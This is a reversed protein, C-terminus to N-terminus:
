EFVVNYKEGFDKQTSIFDEHLSEIGSIISDELRLAKQQELQTFLTDPLEILDILEKYPGAVMNDYGEFLAVTADHLMPDKQFTGISDVQRIGERIRGRLIHYADDIRSTDIKNLTSDLENLANLVFEQQAILRDNYAAAEESRSNCSSFSLTIFVVGFLRTLNKM